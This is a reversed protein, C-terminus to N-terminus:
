AGEGCDESNLSNSRSLTKAPNLRSLVSEPIMEKLLTVLLLLSETGGYLLIVAGLYLAWFLLSEVAIRVFAGGWGAMIMLNQMYGTAVYCIGGALTSALIYRWIADIFPALGIGAPRGAYWFAPFLLIWYSATWAAAIGAPGWPLALFFLLGTFISEFISWRLWRDARGISLHIWGQTYYLLTIGIGPGFFTFIRGAEGWSPGLFLRILDRGALTLNAGVGMGVLAMLTISGIIHRRFQFSDGKFKSLASIAVNALPATIQSAPLAFLDYAKKYFGLSHAGFRWGVLLNDMNRALYNVGFRSYVNLAFSLMSGTGTAHRPLGPLWRCRYWAGLSQSLPVAITGAVLAWYGFGAWALIISLVVSVVRAVIDNASVTGFRMARRLLALHLVSTSTLFISISIGVTIKILAPERYFRALLSGAAAFGVSLLAGAVLNIWFLNSALAHDLEEQQLVAETFGNLGFNTLLLSFTTVMAVLGFDAPTLLRALVLTSAIQAVLTVGGSFMTAGAGRVALRRVEGIAPGFVGNEDFPVFRAKERM